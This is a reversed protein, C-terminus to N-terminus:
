KDKGRYRVETIWRAIQTRSRFDLKDLVHAVHTAVTTRAINLRSAIEANRLGVAVLEAVEMERDSLDDQARDSVLM